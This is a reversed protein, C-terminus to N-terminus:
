CNTLTWAIYIHVLLIAYSNHVQECHRTASITETGIHIDQVANVTVNTLGQVFLHPVICVTVM